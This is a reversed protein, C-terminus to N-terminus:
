DPAVTVEVEDRLTGWGAVEAEIAVFWQLKGEMSRFSYPADPPVEISARYTKRIGPELSASRDITQVKRHLITSTKKVQGRGEMKQRLARLELDLRTLAGARRAELVLELEVPKGPAVQDSALGLEFGRFPHRDLQYVLAVGARLLNLVVPVGFLALVWNSIRGQYFRALHAYLLAIGIAIFFSMWLRKKGQAILSTWIM